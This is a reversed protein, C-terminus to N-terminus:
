HLPDNEIGGDQDRSEDGWSPRRRCQPSSNEVIPQLDKYTRMQQGFQCPDKLAGLKAAIDRDLLRSGEYCLNRPATPCEHIGDVHGSGTPVRAVVIQHRESPFGAYASQDAPVPVQGLQDIGIWGDQGRCLRDVPQESESSQSAGGVSWACVM